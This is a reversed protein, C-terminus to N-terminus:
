NASHHTTLGSLFRGWKGEWQNPMLGYQAFEVSACYKDVLTVVFSEKYKPPKVTVPWMHKVIIDKEVRNLDFLQVANELAITPHCFCHRGNDPRTVHSNYFYFDHLLGGRAASRYDLGLKRCALYSRYSVHLSHELRTTKKHHAFDDMSYISEHQTLDKICSKYERKSVVDTKLDLKAEILEIM